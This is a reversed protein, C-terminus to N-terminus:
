GNMEIWALAIEERHRKAWEIATKVHAHTEDGGIVVMDRIRLIANTEPSAM